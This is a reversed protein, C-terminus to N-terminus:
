APEDFWDLELQPPPRAPHPVPAELPEGFRGLLPRLDEPETAYQVIRVRGGCRICVELDERFTRKLLAAWALRYKSGDLYDPTEDFLQLQAPRNTETPAPVIRSRLKANAALVGHYRILHFRPPPVLAVLRGILDLPDLVLSTTGDKWPRKMRYRVRGDPLQELRHQALPPRGVYRLERELQMRDRGDIARGAYVNFGGVTVAAVTRQHGDSAAAPDLLRLTPQGTRKGFQEIGRVAADYCYALAPEATQLPDECGDADLRDGDLLRRRRLLRKAREFTRRAVYALDEASPEGLPHFVLQGDQEVYAGDLAETHSHVNLRLASDFRQIFTVAGTHAEAVSGLGLERKARRRLSDLVSNVFAGVIEGALQQDYGVLYRLEWPLTCIWSRVPQQPLVHDVLFAASDNMRRGLCSPCWGRGKCSLGVLREHSCQSCAVLVAGHALIGCRLYPEFEDVVFAPLPGSQEARERYSQWHEQVLRYLVSHEPQRRRYGGVAASTAAHASQAAAPQAM